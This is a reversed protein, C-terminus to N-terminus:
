DEKDKPDLYEEQIKLLDEPGKARTLADVVEDNSLLESLRAINDLHQNPDCSAVTFFLQADKEPDNEDFSVPKELKMFGIATKHINVSNEQSHPMAVNPIIVIYPGYKEICAIIEDEYAPDITGDAELSKCSMRVAERWDPASEAFLYHKKEVFTRLM